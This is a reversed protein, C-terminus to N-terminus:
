LINLWRVSCVKSWIQGKLYKGGAEPDTHQRAVTFLTDALPRNRCVSHHTHIHISPALAPIPGIKADGRLPVCGIILGSILHSQSFSKSGSGEPLRAPCLPPGDSGSSSELTRAGVGFHTKGSSEGGAGSSQKWTVNIAGRGLYADYLLLPSQSFHRRSLIERWRSRNHCPCRSAHHLAAFCFPGSFHNRSIAHMYEFSHLLLHPAFQCPAVPPWTAGRAYIRGFPLFRLPSM